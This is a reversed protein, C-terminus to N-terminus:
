FVRGELAHARKAADLFLDRWRGALQSASPRDDPGPHLMQELLAKIPRGLAGPIYGLPELEVPAAFDDGPIAKQPNKSTFLEALVLGLQFVDSKPTPPSGGNLYAVLDPTRYTRPMRPGLSEQLMQRDTDPDPDHHKLLGFDGLVCSGGKLFINPPKIDRHVVAVDPRALYDLASLLQLAYSLKRVMEHQGRLVSALTQPLYEAVVFPHEELYLGEDFVRMIAPHHCGRLFAIERLFRVRWDPKSLRRFIKLAFLLGRHPGSTALILYTEASGGRGLPQLNEYRTGSHAHLGQRFGFRLADQM